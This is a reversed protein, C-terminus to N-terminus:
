LLPFAREALILAGASALVIAVRAVDASRSAYTRALAVAKAM